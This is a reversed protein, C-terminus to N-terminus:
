GTFVRLTKVEHARLEVAVTRNSGLSAPRPNRELLDVEDVAHAQVGLDLAATCAGGDAEYLRLIMADEDEAWKITEVVV